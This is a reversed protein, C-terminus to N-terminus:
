RSVMRLSPVSPQSPTPQGSSYPPRPIVGISWNMKKSSAACATTGSGSIASFVTPGVMMCNPVSSCFAYKRGRIREPSISKAM